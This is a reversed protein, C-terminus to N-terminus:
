DELYRKVDKNYKIYDEQYEFYNPLSLTLLDVETPAIIKEVFSPEFTPYEINKNIDFHKYYDIFYLHKQMQIENFFNIKYVENNSILNRFENNSFTRVLRLMWEIEYNIALEMDIDDVSLNKIDLEIGYQEKIKKALELDHSLHSFFVNKFIITNANAFHKKRQNHLYNFLQKGEKIKGMDFYKLIKISMLKYTSSFPLLPPIDSTIYSDEALIIEDFSLLNYYESLAKEKEELLYYYEERNKFIDTDKETHMLKIESYKYNFLEFKRYNVYQEKSYNINNIEYIKDSVRKSNERYENNFMTNLIFICIFYM